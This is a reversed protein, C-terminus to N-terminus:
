PTGNPKKKNLEAILIDAAKVAEPAADENCYQGEISLLAAMQQSAIYADKAIFM